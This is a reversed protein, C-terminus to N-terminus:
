VDIDSLDKIEIENTDTNQTKVKIDTDDEDNLLVDIIKYDPTNVPLPNEKNETDDEPSYGGGVSIDIDGFGNSDQGSSTDFDFNDLDSDSSNDATNNDTNTLNDNSMDSSITNNTTNSDLPSGKAFDAPTDDEVLRQNVLKNLWPYKKASEFVNLQVSENKKKNGVYQVASGLNAVGVGGFCEEIDEDDPLDIIALKSPTKPAPGKFVAPDIRKGLGIDEPTIYRRSNLKAIETVPLSKTKNLIPKLNHNQVEGATALQAYDKLTEIDYDRSFKAADKTDDTFLNEINIDIDAKANKIKEQQNTIDAYIGVLENDYFKKKKLISDVTRNLSDLNHAAGKLLSLKETQKESIAALVDNFNKRLTLLKEDKENTTDYNAEYNVLPRITGELITYTSILQEIQNDIAKRYKTLVEIREAAQKCASNDRLTTNLIEKYNKALYKDKNHQILYGEYSDSSNTDTNVKKKDDNVSKVLDLWNTETLTEKSEKIVTNEKPLPYKNDKLWKRLESVTKFLEIKGNHSLCINNNQKFIYANKSKLSATNGPENVVWENYSDDETSLKKLKKLVDELNKSYTLTQKLADTAKNLLQEKTDSKEVTEEETDIENSLSSLDLNNDTKIVSTFKGDAEIIVPTVEKVKDNLTLKQLAENLVPLFMSRIKVTKEM